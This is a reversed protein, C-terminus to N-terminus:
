IARYKNTKDTRFKFALYREKIIQIQFERQLKELTYNIRENAFKLAELKLKNGLLDWGEERRQSNSVDWYKRKRSEKSIYFTGALERDYKRIDVRGEPTVKKIIKEIEEIALSSKLIFHNHYGKRNNFPETSFFMRTTKNATSEEFISYLKHMLQFCEEQPLSERYAITVFYDWDFLFLYQELTLLNRETTNNDYAEPLLKITNSLQRNRNNIVKNQSILELINPNFEGIFEFYYKFPKEKTKFWEIHKNMLVFEKRKREVTRININCIKALDKATFWKKQEIIENM